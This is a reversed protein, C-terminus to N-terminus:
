KELRYWRERMREITAEPVNHISDYNETCELIILGVNEIAMYRKLEKYTTFTNSVVVNHGESLAEVAKNYCWNHAAPLKSGDFKSNEFYMDAEVHVYGLDVAINRASTSKGSGPLGRILVLKPHTYTM